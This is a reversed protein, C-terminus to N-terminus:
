LMKDNPQVFQFLVPMNIYTKMTMLLLSEPILYHILDVFTCFKVPNRELFINSKVIKQRGFVSISLSQSIVLVFYLLLLDFNNKKTSSVLGIIVLEFGVLKIFSMLRVNVSKLLQNLAFKNDGFKSFVLKM